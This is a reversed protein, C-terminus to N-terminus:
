VTLGLVPNPTRINRERERERERERKILIKGVRHNTSLQYIKM